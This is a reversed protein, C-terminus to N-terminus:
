KKGGKEFGIWKDAKNIKELVGWFEDLNKNKGMAFVVLTKGM